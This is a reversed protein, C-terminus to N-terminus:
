KETQQQLEVIRRRIETSGIKGEFGEKVEGDGSGSELVGVEFVELEAWGKEERKDNVAKGGARTEATVVLATINEDTITPGFPDQIQTYNITISSEDGEATQGSGKSPTYTVAVVKGNPVDEDNREEVSRIVSPNPHFCLITEVFDACRQQRVSWSELASAHKKNVLLADGTIGITIKRPQSPDALLITATLLLKHGIHLHDFTGGVAVQHHLRRTNPDTSNTSTVSPLSTLFSTSLPSTPINTTLSPGSPLQTITPSFNHVRQFLTTFDNTLKVGSESEISFITSPRRSNILAILDIIPGSLQENFGNLDLLVVRADVGGPLDLDVNCGCRRPM